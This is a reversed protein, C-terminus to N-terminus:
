TLTKMEKVELVLEGPGSASPGCEVWLCVWVVSWSYCVWICYESLYECLCEIVCKLLVRQLLKQHLVCDSMLSFVSQLHINQICMKANEQRLMHYVTLLACASSLSARLTRLSAAPSQHEHSSPSWSSWDTAEAEKAGDDACPFLYLVEFSRWIVHGDAVIWHDWQVGNRRTHGFCQVCVPWHLCM